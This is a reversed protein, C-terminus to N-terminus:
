RPEAELIRCRPELRAGAGQDRGCAERRHRLFRHDRGHHRRPEELQRDACAVSQHQPSRLYSSCVDSSWDSIRMEYAAKQKCVFFVLRAMTDYNVCSMLDM